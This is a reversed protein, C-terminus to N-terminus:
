VGGIVDLKRKYERLPDSQFDERACPSKRNKEENEKTLQIIHKGLM